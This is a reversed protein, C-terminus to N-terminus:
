EHRADKHILFYTSIRKEQIAKEKLLKSLVKRIRYKSGEFETALERSTAPLFDLIEDKLFEDSKTKQTGFAGM